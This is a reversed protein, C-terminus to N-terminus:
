LISPLTSLIADCVVHMFHRIIYPPMHVLPKCKTKCVGVKEHETQMARQQALLTDRESLLERRQQSLENQEMSTNTTQTMLHDCEAIAKDRESLLRAQESQLRSKEGAWLEQEQTLQRNLTLMLTDFGTITM